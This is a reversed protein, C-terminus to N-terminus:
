ICHTHWDYRHGGGHVPQLIEARRVGAAGTPCVCNYSHSNTGMYVYALVKNEKVLYDCGDKDQACGVDAIMCTTSDQCEGEQWPRGITTM